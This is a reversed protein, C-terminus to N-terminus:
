KERDRPTGRGHSLTLMIGIVLFVVGLVVGVVGVYVCLMQSVATSDHFPIAIALYAGLGGCLLAVLLCAIGCGRM